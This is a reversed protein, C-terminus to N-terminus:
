TFSKQYMKGLADAVDRHKNPYLHSYINNVMEMTDGIHETILLLRIRKAGTQECGREMALRLKSRTFLFLRNQSNVDYIRSMDDLGPACLSPLLTLPTPLTINDHYGFSVCKKNGSVPIIRRLITM